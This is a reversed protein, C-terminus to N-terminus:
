RPYSVEQGHLWSSYLILVLNATNIGEHLQDVLLCEWILNNIKEWAVLRILSDQRVIECVPVSNAFILFRLFVKERAHAGRVSGNQKLVRM